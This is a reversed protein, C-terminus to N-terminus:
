TKGVYEKFVLRAMCKKCKFNRGAQIKKHMNSKFIYREEPCICVYAYTDYKKKKVESIDYNHCRDPSLGFVHSMVLKWSKKHGWGKFVRYDVLHAIEHPITQKLYHELNNKAIDLNFHVSWDQYNACGGNTGKVDFLVKPDEFSTLTFKSRVIKMCEDVKALILAEINMDRIYM